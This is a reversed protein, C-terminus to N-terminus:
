LTPRIKFKALVLNSYLLNTIYSSCPYYWHKDTHIQPKYKEISHFFFTGVVFGIERIAIARIAATGSFPEAAFAQM